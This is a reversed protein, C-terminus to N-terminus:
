VLCVAIITCCKTLISVRFSKQISPWKMTKYFTNADAFQDQKGFPKLFNVFASKTYNVRLLRGFSFWKLTLYECRKYALSNKMLFM